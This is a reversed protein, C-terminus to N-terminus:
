SDVIRLTKYYFHGNDAYVVSSANDCTSTTHSKHTLVIQLICQTAESKQNTKQEAKKNLGFVLRVGSNQNSKCSINVKYKSNQAESLM